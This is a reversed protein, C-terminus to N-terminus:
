HYCHVCPWRVERVGSAFWTTRWVGSCTWLFWLASQNNEGQDGQAHEYGKTLIDRIHQSLSKDSRTQQLWCWLRYNAGFACTIKIPGDPNYETWHKM